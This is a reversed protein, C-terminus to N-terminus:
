PAAPTPGPHSGPARLLAFVSGSAVVVLLVLVLLSAGPARGHKMIQHIVPTHMGALFWALACAVVTLRYNNTTM